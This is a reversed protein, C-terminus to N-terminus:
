ARRFCSKFADTPTWMIWRCSIPLIIRMRDSRSKSPTSLPARRGPKRSSSVATISGIRGPVPIGISIGSLGSGSGRNARIDPTVSSSYLNPTLGNLSIGNSDTRETRMEWVLDVLGAGPLRPEFRYAFTDDVSDAQAFELLLQMWNTLIPQRGLMPDSRVANAMASAETFMKERLLQQFLMEVGAYEGEDLMQNLEAVLSLMASRLVTRDATPGAKAAQAGALSLLQLGVTHRLTADGTDM